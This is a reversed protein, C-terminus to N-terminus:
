TPRPGGTGEVARMADLGAELPRPHFDLLRRAAEIDDPKECVLRAVQDPALGGERFTAMVRAATRVAFAPVRITRRRVGLHRAIRHVLDRYAISEPGALTFAAHRAGERVVSEAIALAVDDLYVPSLRARGGAIVPVLRHACVWERLHNVGEVLGPGYVERPRLIVWDLGSARVLAEGELKSEAYTGGGPVAAGSSVFAFRRVGARSCAALLARTGDVNVRRYDSARRAHTRAALHVVADVGRAAPELTPPDVLDAEITEFDSSRLARRHVMARVAMGRRRLEDAVRRGIASSAGTVLVKM